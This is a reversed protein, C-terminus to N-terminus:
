SAREMRPYPVVDRVQFAVGGVRGSQLFARIGENEGGGPDLNEDDAGLEEEGEEPQSGSGAM